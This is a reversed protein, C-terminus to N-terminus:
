ERSRSGTHAAALPSRRAAHEEVRLGAAHLHVVGLRVVSRTTISCAFCTLWGIVSFDADFRIIVWATYLGITGDCSM